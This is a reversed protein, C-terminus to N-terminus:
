RRLSDSEPVATFPVFIAVRGSGREWWVDASRAHLELDRPPAVHYILTDGNMEPKVGRTGPSSELWDNIDRENSQFIVSYSRNSSQDPMKLGVERASNPLPGMQAWQRIASIQSDKVTVSDSESLMWIVLVILGLVFIAMLVPQPIRTRGPQAEPLRSEYVPKKQDPRDEPPPLPKRPPPLPM